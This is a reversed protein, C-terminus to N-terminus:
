RPVMAEALLAVVAVVAVPGEAKLRAARGLVAFLRDRM